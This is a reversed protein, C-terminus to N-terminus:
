GMLGFGRSTNVPDPDSGFEEFLSRQQADAYDGATVGAIVDGFGSFRLDVQGAAPVTTGAALLLSTFSTRIAILIFGRALM